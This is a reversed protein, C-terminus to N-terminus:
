FRSNEPARYLLNQIISQALSRWQLRSRFLTYYPVKLLM